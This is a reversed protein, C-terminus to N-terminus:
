EQPSTESISAPSRFKLKTNVEIEHPNEIQTNLSWIKTWYDKHGLLKLSIDALTDGPAVVYEQDKILASVHNWEEESIIDNAKRGWAQPGIMYPKEVLEEQPISAPIRAQQPPPTFSIFPREPQPIRKISTTSLSQKTEVNSNRSQNTIVVSGIGGAAKNKEANEKAKLARALKESQAKKTADSNDRLAIEQQYENPRNAFWLGGLLFLGGIAMWFKKNGM